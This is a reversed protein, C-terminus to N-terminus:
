PSPHCCPSSPPCPNPAHDRLVPPFEPNKREVEFELPPPPPGPISVIPRAQPEYAFLPSVARADRFRSEGTPIPSVKKQWKSVPQIPWPDDTDVPRVAM